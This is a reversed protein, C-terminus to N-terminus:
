PKPHHIPAFIQCLVGLISTSDLIQRGQDASLSTVRSARFGLGLAEAILDIGDESAMAPILIKGLIHATPGLITRLVTHQQRSKRLLKTYLGGTGHIYNSSANPYCKEPQVTITPCTGTSEEFRKILSTMTNM